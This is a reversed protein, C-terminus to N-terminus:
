FGCGEKVLESIQKSTLANRTSPAEPLGAFHLAEHILVIAAQERSLAGFGTCLYTVSSGVHTYALAGRDCSDDTREASPAAYFTSQLREVGSVLFPEFLALCTKNARVKEIAFPFGEFLRETVTAGITGNLKPEITARARVSTGVSLVALYHSIEPEDDEIVIPDRGDETNRSAAVVLMRDDDGTALHILLESDTYDIRDGVPTAPPGDISVSRIVRGEDEIPLMAYRRGDIYTVLHRDRGYTESQQAMPGVDSPTSPVTPQFPAGATVGGKTVDALQEGTNLDYLVKRVWAGSDDAYIYELALDEGVLLGVPRGDAARIIDVVMGHTDQVSSLTGSSHRKELRWGGHDDSVAVGNGKLQRVETSFSVEGIRTTQTRSVRASRTETAGADSIFALPITAILLALRM